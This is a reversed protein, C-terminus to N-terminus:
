RIALSSGVRNHKQRYELVLESVPEQSDRLLLRTDSPSLFTSMKPPSEFPFQRWRCHSSLEEPHVPRNFRFTAQHTHTSAIRTTTSSLEMHASRLSDSRNVTPTGPLEDSEAFTM